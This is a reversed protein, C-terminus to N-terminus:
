QTSLCPVHWDIERCVCVTSVNVNLNVNVGISLKELEELDGLM